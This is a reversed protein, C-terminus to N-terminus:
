EIGELHEHKQTAVISGDFDIAPLSSKEYDIADTPFRAPCEQIMFGPQPIARKM